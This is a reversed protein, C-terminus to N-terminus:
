LALTDSKSTHPFLNKKGNGRMGMANNGSGGMEM